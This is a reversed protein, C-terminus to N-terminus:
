VPVKQLEKIENAILVAEDIRGQSALSHLKDILVEMTKDVFDSDKYAIM